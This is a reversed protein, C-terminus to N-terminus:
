VGCVVSVSGGCVSCECEGGCVVSVSGWVCVVSVSGGCVSCECEEGVCVVSM